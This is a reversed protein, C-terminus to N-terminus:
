EGNKEGSLRKMMAAEVKDVYGDLSPEIERIKRFLARNYAVSAAHAESENIAGDAKTKLEKVAPDELAAAKVTKYKEADDVVETTSKEPKAPAAKKGSKTTAATDKSEASTKKEEPSEAPKEAAVTEEKKEEDKKEAAAKASRTPKKDKSATKRSSSPKSEAQSKPRSKPKPKEAADAVPKPAPKETAAPAPPPVPAPEEKKGFMRKLFPKKPPAENVVKPKPPPLTRVEQASLLATFPLTTLSVVVLLKRMPDTPLDPANTNWRMRKDLREELLSELEVKKRLQASILM